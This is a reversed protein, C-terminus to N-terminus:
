QTRRPSHNQHRPGGTGTLGGRECRHDVDDVLCLVVRVNNGNLIRNLKIMGVLHADSRLALHVLIHRAKGFRQAARQTLIRFHNQHTLQTVQLGNLHRHRSCFGTVQHETGQVGSARGLRNITNHVGKGHLLLLGNANLKGRYQLRDNGLNQHLANGLPSTRNVIDHYIGRGDRRQNTVVLGEPNRRILM